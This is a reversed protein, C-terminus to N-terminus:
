GAPEMPVRAAGRRERDDHGDHLRLHQGPLHRHSRHLYGPRDQRVQRAVRERRRQRLSFNPTPNPNPNPNSNLDPDPNPDPNPNPNHDPSCPISREASGAPIYTQKNSHPARSCTFATLISAVVGREQTRRSVENSYDELSTDVITSDLTWLEYQKAKLRPHPNTTLTLILFPPPTHTPNPDPGRCYCEGV